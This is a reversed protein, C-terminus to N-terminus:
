SNLYEKIADAISHWTAVRKKDDSELMTIRFGHRRCCFGTLPVVCIGKAALLYYVFRKDLELNDLKGEIFAQVKSDRIKLTQKDTLADDDFLVAMYFAGQPRVVHVGNVKNFIEVAENTRTEFLKRRSELHAPYRKDSMIVPISRQPLSTSCVELMKAHIISDIYERFSRDTHQNYVEFWGCRGGPWPFEKSIGKLAIGPVEEIVDGLLTSEAGNYTIAQYIEDSIVMVGYRRAIDVIKEMTERNYVAGTPNGPNIVLIGAITDNYKVKKEIEELNPAWNNEPLLEYTEHEYGSHASEASSHTPYAPSPGIIRAERKMSGFMRAVADGLGNFFIIDEPRIRVGGRANTRECLFKRTDPEGQTATYGWTDDQQVLDVVAQKMWDPLREGKHVPDGINEYIMKLGMTELENALAVIERIEYKFKGAAPGVISHRISKGM